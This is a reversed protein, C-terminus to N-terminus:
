LHRFLNRSNHYRADTAAGLTTGSSGLSGVVTTITGVGSPVPGSPGFSVKRIAYNSYDSIYLNGAHDITIGSPNNLQSNTAVGASDVTKGASGEIGAVTVIIGSSQIVMRVIHNSEDCVYINGSIDSVMAQINGFIASTAPGNNIAYGVGNAYSGAITSIEGVFSASSPAYTPAVTPSSPAHTPAKSPAYSALTACSSSFLRTSSSYTCTVWDWGSSSPCQCYPSSYGQFYSCLPCPYVLATPAATPSTYPYSTVFNVSYLAALLFCHFITSKM